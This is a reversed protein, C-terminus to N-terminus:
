DRGRGRSNTGLTANAMPDPAEPTAPSTEEEAQVQGTPDASFGSQTMGTRLPQLGSHGQRRWTEFDNHFQLERERCYDEYDRDLESLHRDRWSRYHDDLNSSFDRRREAHEGEFGGFEPAYGRSPRRSWRTFMTERNRDPGGRGEDSGRWGEERWNRQGRPRLEDDRDPDFEGPVGYGDGLYGHAM